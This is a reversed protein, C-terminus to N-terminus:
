FGSGRRICTLEPPKVQEHLYRTDLFDGHLIKQTQLENTKSFYQTVRVREGGLSICVNCSETREKLQLILTVTAERYNEMQLLKKAHQREKHSQHLFYKVINKLTMAGGDSCDPMLHLTHPPGPPTGRLGSLPTVSCRHSPHPHSLPPLLPLRSIPSAPLPLLVPFQELSEPGISAPFQPLRDISFMPGDQKYVM